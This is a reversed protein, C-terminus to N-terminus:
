VGIFYTLRGRKRVENLCEIARIFCEPRRKFNGVIDILWPERGNADMSPLTFRHREDYISLGSSNWRAVPEEVRAILNTVLQFFAKLASGGRLM